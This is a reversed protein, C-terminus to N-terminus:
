ESFKQEKLRCKSLVCRRSGPVFTERRFWGSNNMVSSWHALIWSSGSCRLVFYLFFESSPFSFFRSCNLLSQSMRNGLASNRRMDGQLSYGGRRCSGGPPRTRGPRPVAGGACQGLRSGTQSSRQPSYLLLVSNSDMCVALAMSARSFPWTLETSSKRDVVFSCISIIISVISIISFRVALTM